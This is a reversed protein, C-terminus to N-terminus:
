FHLPSCLLVLRFRPPEFVIDNGPHRQLYSSLFSKEISVAM